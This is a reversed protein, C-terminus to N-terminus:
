STASRPLFNARTHIAEDVQERIWPFDRYLTGAAEASFALEVGGRKLGQWGATAAVLLEIGQQEMQEPTPAAMRGKRAAREMRGRNQELQKDRYADSDAGMVRITPGIKDGTEPHRLEVDFGANAGARTNLTDLDM